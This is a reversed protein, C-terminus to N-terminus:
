RFANPDANATATNTHSNFFVGHDATFASFLELESPFLITETQLLM